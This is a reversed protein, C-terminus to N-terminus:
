YQDGDTLTLPAGRQYLNAAFPVRTVKSRAFGSPEMLTSSQSPHVSRLVRKQEAPIEQTIVNLLSSSVLTPERRRRM